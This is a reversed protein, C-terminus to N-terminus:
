KEESGAAGGRRRPPEGASGFRALFDAYALRLGERLPIRPTWGLARLRSSDLLKRPTGDPRSADWEIAGGYGVVERVQGALERISLDEGWGVNLLPPADERFLGALRAEPLGLLHLVAGALDDSALFERRPRGTGWATVSPAGALKARHMRLIMAPLVHSSEPDYRDGPGYLNTPMLALYRTGYQRNYAWCMEAGAIKAVAYPRNTPEPPGSLLHEERMPQPCDRPYLCSSGLYLLRTVGARWSEHIVNTAIALNERIFEAPLNWNAAIGGVKAACLIVCGPRESALLGRVASQATLDLEAHTRTLLDRYGAARLARLVASGALGTHGAVFVRTGPGPAYESM